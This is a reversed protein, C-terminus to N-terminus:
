RCRAHVSRGEAAENAAAVVQEMRPESNRATGRLSLSHAIATAEARAREGKAHLDASTPSSWAAMLANLGSRARALDMPDVGGAVAAAAAIQTEISPALAPRAVLPQECGSLVAATTLLLLYGHSRSSMM